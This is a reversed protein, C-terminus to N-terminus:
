SCRRYCCSNRLWGLRSQGATGRRRRSMGAMFSENSASHSARLRPRSLATATVLHLNGLTYSIARELLASESFLAAARRETM